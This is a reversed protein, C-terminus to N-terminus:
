IYMKYWLFHLYLHLFINIKSYKISFFSTTNDPYLHMVITGMIYGKMSADEYTATLTGSAFKDQYIFEKETKQVYTLNLLPNLSALLPFHTIVIILVPYNSM